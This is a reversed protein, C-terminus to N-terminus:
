ICSPPQIEDLWITLDFLNNTADDLIAARARARDLM